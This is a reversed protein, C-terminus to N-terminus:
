RFKPRKVLIASMKGVVFFETTRTTYQLQFLSMRLEDRVEAYREKIKLLESIKSEAESLSRELEATDREPSSGASHMGNQGAEDYIDEEEEVAKAGAQHEDEDNDAGPPPPPPLPKEHQRLIELTSSLEEVQLVLFCFDMLSALQKFVSKRENFFGWSIRSIFAKALNRVQQCLEQNKELLNRQEGTLKQNQSRLKENEEDTESSDTGNHSHAGDTEQDTQQDADTSEAAASQTAVSVGLGQDSAVSSQTAVNATEVSPSVSFLPSFKKRKSTM